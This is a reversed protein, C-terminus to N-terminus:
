KIEKIITHKRYLRLVRTCISGNLEVQQGKCTLYRFHTRSTCGSDISTPYSPSELVGTCKDYFEPESDCFIEVVDGAQFAQVTTSFLLILLFLRNM